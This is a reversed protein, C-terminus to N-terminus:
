KHRGVKTLYIMGGNTRESIKKYYDAMLDRIEPSLPNDDRDGVAKFRDLAAQKSRMQTYSKAIVYLRILEMDRDPITFTFHYGEPADDLTEGAGPVWLVESTPVEHVAFYTLLVQESTDANLYLNGGQIYYYVPTQSKQFQVGSRTPRKQLFTDLPCEVTIDDVFNVPLTYAGDTLMLEVRDIRRPFWTSYDRIADRTYSLLLADAWRKTSGTDQLEIRIDTLFETWTTM